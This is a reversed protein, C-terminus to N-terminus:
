MGKIMPFFSRVQDPNRSAASSLHSLVEAIEQVGYLEILSEISEDIKEEAEEEPMGTLTPAVPLKKGSIKELIPVVLPHELIQGIGGFPDEEEEDDEELEQLRRKLPEVQQRVKEDLEYKHIRENLEKIEARLATIESQAAKDIMGVGSSREQPRQSPNIEIRFKMASTVNGGRKEGEGKSFPKDNLLVEIYGSGSLYDLARRLKDISEHIPLAEDSAAITPYNPPNDVSRVKWYVLTPNEEMAQYIQEKQSTVPM